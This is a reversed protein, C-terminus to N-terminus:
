PAVVPSYLVTTPFPIQNTFWWRGEASWQIETGGAEWQGYHQYAVGDADLVVSYIPLADLEEVTTVQRPKTYGAELVAAAIEAILDSEENAPTFDDQSMTGHSWAEWVRNCAYIDGPLESALLEALEDHETTM